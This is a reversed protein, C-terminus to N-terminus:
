LKHFHLWLMGLSIPSLSLMELLFNMARLAEL